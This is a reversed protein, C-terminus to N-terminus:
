KTGYCLQRREVEKETFDAVLINSEDVFLQPIDTNIDEL